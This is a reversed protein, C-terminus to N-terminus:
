KENPDSENSSSSESGNPKPDDESPDNTETTTTKAATNKKSNKKSTNIAQDGLFDKSNVGMSMYVNILGDVGIDVFEVWDTPVYLIAGGFPVPATPIMVSYYDKGQITIKDPSSLLGLVGTGGNGGFHCMVATMSRIGSDDKKEFLRILNKSADYLTNIVPVRLLTSDVLSQIRNSLGAQVIVGLLYILVFTILLGILYSTLENNGINLGFGALVKGFMSSPGLFHHLVDVIWVCAVITLALPAAALLGTLFTRFTRQLLHTDKKGFM